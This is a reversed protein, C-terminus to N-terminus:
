IEKNILLLLKKQFKEFSFVKANKVCNQSNYKERQFKEMVGVLSDVTQDEFFEGTKGEKILETAGGKRYAIVPAGCAQAEIMTLGLDENGPFLLAKANRYRQILKEESVIGEFTVTPGALKELAERKRGDGIIILPVKLTNAAQIALDIKKYGVLRSVVLFYEGKQTQTTSSSNATFFIKAISPYIVISKRAYINKIRRQVTKSIAIYADPRASAAMDWKKLYGVMPKSFTKLIPNTFYDEYGTYLYRTPTLCISIHKVNPPVIIGKAAESSVTIVLDFNSLDFSEFALPM